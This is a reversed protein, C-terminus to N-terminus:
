PGPLTVLTRSLHHVALPLRNPIRKEVADQPRIRTSPSLSCLTINLHRVHSLLPNLHDDQVRSLTSNPSSNLPSHHCDQVLGPNPSAALLLRLHFLRNTLLPQLLVRGQREPLHRVGPGSHM